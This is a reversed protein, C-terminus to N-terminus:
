GRKSIFWVMFGRFGESPPFRKAFVLGGGNEGLPAGDHVVLAFCLFIFILFIFYKRYYPLAVFVHSLSLLACDCSAHQLTSRFTKPERIM